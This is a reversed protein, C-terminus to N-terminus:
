AHRINFIKSKKKSISILSYTSDQAIGVWTSDNLFDPNKYFNSLILTGNLDKFNFYKEENIIKSILIYDNFIEEYNLTSDLEKM